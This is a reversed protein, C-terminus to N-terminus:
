EINSCKRKYVEIDAMTYVNTFCDSQSFLKEPQDFRKQLSPSIYIYEIGYRDMLKLVSVESQSLVMTKADDYRQRPNPSFIFNTDYVTKVDGYSALMHGDKIDALVTQDSPINNDMWRMTEFESRKPSEETITEPYILLTSFSLLLIIIFFAFVFVKARPLISKNFLDNLRLLTHGSIPILSVTVYLLGTDLPLIGLWTSLGFAFTMATLLLLKKNRREFLLYYIGTLGLGILPVGVFSIILAVNLGAFMNLLLDQPVSQSIVQLGHLSILKKYLVLHYWVAFLGSFMLVELEKRRLPMGEFRVLLFYILFGAILVLSLPSTLTALIMLIIFWVMSSRRSSTFFLMIILLYLLVFFTEPLLKNLQSIFLTPTFAAIITLFFAVWDKKFLRKSIIYVLFMIITSFLIGAFKFLILGPAILSLGAMLYYFLLHSVHTRGQYSQDDYLVPTGTEKIHDIQRMTYFSEYTPANTQLV